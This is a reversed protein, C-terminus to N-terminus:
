QTNASRPSQILLRTGVEPEDDAAQELEETPHDDHGDETRHCQAHRRRSRSLNAQAQSVTRKPKKRGPTLSCTPTSRQQRPTSIARSSARALLAASPMRPIILRACRRGSKSTIKFTTPKLSIQATSAPAEQRDHLADRRTERRAVQMANLQGPAAAALGERVKDATGEPVRITYEGSKVPTTWRRFEPNLTQIDDIPM